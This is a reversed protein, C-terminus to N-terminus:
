NYIVSGYVMVGIEAGTSLLVVFEYELNILCYYYLNLANNESVKEYRLM